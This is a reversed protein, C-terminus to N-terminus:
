LQLEAVRYCESSCDIIHTNIGDRRSVRGDTKV